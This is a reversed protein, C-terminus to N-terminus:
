YQEHIISNLKIKENQLNIVINKSAVVDELLKIYKDLTDM